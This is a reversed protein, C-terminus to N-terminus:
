HEWMEMSLELMPIGPRIELSDYSARPNCGWYSNKTHLYKFMGCSIYGTGATHVQSLLIDPHFGGPVKLHFIIKTMDLNWEVVLKYRNRIEKGNIMAIRILSLLFLHSKHSEASILENESIKINEKQRVIHLAEFAWKMKYRLKENWTKKRLSEMGSVWGGMGGFFGYFIQWVQDSVLM